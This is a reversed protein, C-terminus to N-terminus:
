WRLLRPALLAGIVTPILMGAIYWVAWFAVEMEPCHLCYILTAVAGSLLGAAAGATRLRTPAMGKMAWFTAIFGPVALYAINFPCSRWSVGLVMALRESAPAFGLTLMAAVVVAAVPIAMATWRRGVQAGPRALRAVVLFAGVAMLAPFALKTWFLPTGLMVSLDPRIGYGTLLLAVAGVASIVIAWTYRRATMTQDAPEANNTLLAVLDDTKM